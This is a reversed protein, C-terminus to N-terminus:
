PTAQGDPGTPGSLAERHSRGRKSPAEGRRRRPKGTPAQRGRYRKATAEGGSAPPKAGGVAHSARRPRDAGIISRPPKAGAECLRRGQPGDTLTAAQLRSGVGGARRDTPRVRPRYDARTAEPGVTRRSQEGAKVASCNGKWGGKGQEDTEATECEARRSIRATTAESGGDRNESLPPRTRNGGHRGPVAAIGEPRDRRCGQRTAGHRRSTAPEHGKDGGPPTAKWGHPARHAKGGAPEARVPRAQQTETKNKATQSAHSPQM